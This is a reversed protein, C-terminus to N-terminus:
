NQDRVLIRAQSDDCQDQENERSSGECREAHGSTFFWIGSSVSPQTGLLVFEDPVILFFSATGASGPPFDGFGSAPLIGHGNVPDTISFTGSFTVNKQFAEQFPESTLDVVAQLTSTESVVHVVGEINPITPVSSRGARVLLNGSISRNHFPGLAQPTLTGSFAMNTSVGAAFPDVDIIFGQQPAYLYIVANEVFGQEFGGPASLVVRGTTPDFSTVTGNVLEGIGVSGGDNTDFLLNMNGGGAITMVGILCTPILNDTGSVADMGTMQIVSKMNISSTDLPKQAFATGSQATGFSAGPDTQVVIWKGKSVVYYAYTSTTGGVTLSLTGRGSSDPPTATGATIPADQFIPASDFAKSMDLVGSQVNGGAGLTFQGAEVIRGGVPADSDFEFAYPGSSAVFSSPRQREITGANRYGTTDFEIITGKEGDESLSFEFALQSPTGPFTFSTINIQGRIADHFSTDITYTGTQQPPIPTIGGESDIDFEGAAINGEGDATISGALVTPLDNADYGQLLIAYQGRFHATSNKGNEGSAPGVPSPVGIRVRAAPASVSALPSSSKFSQSGATSCGAWFPVCICLGVASVTLRM